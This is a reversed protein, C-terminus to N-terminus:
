GTQLGLRPEGAPRPLPADDAILRRARHHLLLVLEATPRFPDAIQAPPGTLSVAAWLEGGVEAVLLPGDPVTGSDTVALARLAEADDPFAYRIMVGLAHDPGPRRPVQKTRFPSTISAFRM